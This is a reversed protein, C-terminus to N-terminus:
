RTEELAGPLIQRTRAGGGTFSFKLRTVRRRPHDCRWFNKKFKKRFREKRLRAPGANAALTPAKTLL